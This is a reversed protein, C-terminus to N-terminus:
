CAFKNKRRRSLEGPQLRMMEERKHQAIQRESLMIHYACDRYFTIVGGKIVMKNKNKTMWYGITDLSFSKDEGIWTKYFYQLGSKYRDPLSFPHYKRYADGHAGMVENYWKIQEHEDLNFPIQGGATKSMSLGGEEFNVSRANGYVCDSADVFRTLAWWEESSLASDLATKAATSPAGESSIPSNVIGPKTAGGRESFGASAHQMRHGTPLGNLNPTRKPKKIEGAPDNKITKHLKQAAQVTEVKAVMLTNFAKSVEENQDSM